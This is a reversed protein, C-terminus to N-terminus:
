TDSTRIILIIYTIVQYLINYVYRVDALMKKELEAIIEETDPDKQNYTIARPVVDIGAVNMAIINNKAADGWGTGDKYHGIYLVKM